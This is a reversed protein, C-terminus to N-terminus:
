STFTYTQDRAPKSRVLSERVCPIGVCQSRIGIRLHHLSHLSLHQSCTLEEWEKCPGLPKSPGRPGGPGGPDGTRVLVKEIDRQCWKAKVLWLQENQGTQLPNSSNVTRLTGFSVHYSHLKTKRFYRLHQQRKRLWLDIQLLTSVPYFYKNQCKRHRYLM